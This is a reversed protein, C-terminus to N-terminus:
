AAKSASFHITQRRIKENHLSAAFVIGQPNVHCIVLKRTFEIIEPQEFWNVPM